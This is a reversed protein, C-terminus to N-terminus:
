AVSVLKIVDNVGDQISGGTKLNLMKTIDAIDAYQIFAPYERNKKVMSPSSHYEVGWKESLGGSSSNAGRSIPVIRLYSFGKLRAVRRNLVHDLV